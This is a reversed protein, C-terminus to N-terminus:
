QARRRTRRHADLSTTQSLGHVLDDFEQRHAAILAAIATLQLDQDTHSWGYNRNLWRATCGSPSKAWDEVISARNWCTMCTTLATRQQGLKRVKAHFEDRTLMVGHVSLKGCETRVRTEWPPQARIVHDLPGDVTM